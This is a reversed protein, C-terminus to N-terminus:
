SDGNLRLVRDGPRVTVVDHSEDLVLLFGRRGKGLFRLIERIEPTAIEEYQRQACFHSFEVCPAAFEVTNLVAVEGTHQNELGVRAGLDAVWVEEPADIIINEGAIGDVMHDGFRERMAAYHASFGICILDDDDYQKGPHDLHHVDLVREGGQPTAEIGRPTITLLDVQVRRSPDYFYGNPTEDPTELILGHPQLQVLSVVGLQRNPDDSM